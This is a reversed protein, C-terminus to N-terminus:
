QSIRPRRWKKIFISFGVVRHTFKDGLSKQIEDAYKKVDERKERAAKLVHIKMNENERKEFRKKIEELITSTLGNKGLQMQIQPM